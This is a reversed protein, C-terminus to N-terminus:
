NKLECTKILANELKNVDSNEINFAYEFIYRPDKRETIADELIKKNSRSVDNAFNFIFEANGNNAVWNSAKNISENDVNVALCYWLMINQNNLKLIQDIDLTELFDCHNKFLFESIINSSTNDNKENYYYVLKQIEKASQKKGYYYLNDNIISIEKEKDIIEFLDTFTM